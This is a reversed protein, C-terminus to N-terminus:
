VTSGPHYYTQRQRALVRARARTTWAQPLTLRTRHQPRFISARSAMARCPRRRPQLVFGCGAAARRRSRRPGVM